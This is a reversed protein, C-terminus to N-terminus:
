ILNCGANTVIESDQMKVPNSYTLKNNNSVKIYEFINSDPKYYSDNNPDIKDLKGTWLATPFIEKSNIEISNFGKLICYKNHFSIFNM